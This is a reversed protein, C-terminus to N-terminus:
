LFTVSISEQLWNEPDAILKTGVLIETPIEACVDESLRDGGAGAEEEFVGRGRHEIFFARGGCAQIGGGAGRGGFLFFYGANPANSNM